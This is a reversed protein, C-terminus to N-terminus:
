KKAVFFFFFRTLPWFFVGIVVVVFWNIGKFFDIFTLNAFIAIGCILLYAFLSFILQNKRLIVLNKKIRSKDPFAEMVDKADGFENISKDIAEEVPTGQEVLDDVKEELSTTLIEILEHKDDDNFLGKLLKSVFRKIKNM